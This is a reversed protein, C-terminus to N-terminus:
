HKSAANAELREKDKMYGRIQLNIFLQDVPEEEFEAASLGFDKRYMYKVIELPVDRSNNYIVEQM